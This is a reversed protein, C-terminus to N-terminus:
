ARWRSRHTPFTPWLRLHDIIGSSNMGPPEVFSFAREIINDFSSRRSSSSVASHPSQYSQGTIVKAPTTGSCTSTAPSSNRGGQPTNGDREREPMSKTQVRLRVTPPRRSRSKRRSQSDSEADLRATPCRRPVGDISAQGKRNWLPGDLQFQRPFRITHASRLYPLPLEHYSGNSSSSHPSLDTFFTVSFSPDACTPGLVRLLIRNLPRVEGIVACPV